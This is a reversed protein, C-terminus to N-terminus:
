LPTYGSNIAKDQIKKLINQVAQKTVGLYSAIAKYGYGRMRLDIILRQKDTLNLAKIMIDYDLVSQADVTYIGDANEGGLDAYKGMRRYITDLGDPSIDDIYIYKNRPDITVAKNSVICRGVERYVEQIPTTEVDKYQASDEAQIYVRKSLKRETYKWDLFNEQGNYHKSYQELISMIATNILDMGDSITEGTLIDNADKAHKDNVERKLDGNIDYELLYANNATDHTQALIRRYHNISYKLKQLLPNNGNNSVKDSQGATKRQPDLYKNLTSKTIATALETISNTYDNGQAFDNELTRKLNDFTNETIAGNGNLNKM